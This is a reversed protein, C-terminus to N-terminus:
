IRQALGALVAPRCRRELAPDALELLDRGRLSALEPDLELADGLQLGLPVDQPDAEDLGSFTLDVTSVMTWHIVNWADPTISAVSLNESGCSETWSLLPKLAM